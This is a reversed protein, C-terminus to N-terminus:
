YWIAPATTTIAVLGACNPTTFRLCIRVDVLDSLVDAEEASHQASYDRLLLALVDKLQDFGGALHGEVYGM